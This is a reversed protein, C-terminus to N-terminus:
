GAMRLPADFAVWSSAMKAKIANVPLDTSKIDVNVRNVDQENNTMDVLNAHM